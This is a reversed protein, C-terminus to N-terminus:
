QSTITGPVFVRPGADKEPEPLRHGFRDGLQRLEAGRLDRHVYDEVAARLNKNADVDRPHGHAYTYYAMVKTACHDGQQALRGVESAITRLLKM